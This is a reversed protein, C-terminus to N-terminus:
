WVRAEPGHTLITSNVLKATQLRHTAPAKSHCLGKPRFRVGRDAEYSRVSRKHVKPVSAMLAMGSFHPRGQRMQEPTPPNPFRPLACVFAVEGRVGKSRHLVINNFVVRAQSCATPKSSWDIEDHKRFWATLLTYRHSDLCEFLETEIKPEGNSLRPPRLPVGGAEAGVVISWITAFGDAALSDM